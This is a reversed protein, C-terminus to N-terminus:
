KLGSAISSAQVITVLSNPRGASRSSAVTYESSSSAANKHFRIAPRGSLRIMRMGVASLKQRMPSVPGHPGQESIKKSWPSWMGPPGGPEAFSSPSRNM